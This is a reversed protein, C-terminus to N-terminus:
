KGREEIRDAASKMLSVFNYYPMGLVENGIHYGWAAEALVRLEDIIEADSAVAYDRMHTKENEACEEQYLFERGCYECVFRKTEQM